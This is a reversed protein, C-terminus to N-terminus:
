VTDKELLEEKVIGLADEMSQLRPTYIRYQACEEEYYAGAMEVVEELAEKIRKDM